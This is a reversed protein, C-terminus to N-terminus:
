LDADVRTVTNVTVKVGTSVFERFGPVVVHVDYTVTPISNLLYTGAASTKGARTRGTELNIISVEADPIAAGSADVVNGTINGYLIQARGEAPVFLVALLAAAAVGLLSKIKSPKKIRRFGM